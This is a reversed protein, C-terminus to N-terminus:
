GHTAARGSVDALSPHTTQQGRCFSCFGARSRRCTIGVCLSEAVKAFRGWQGIPRTTRKISRPTATRNTRLRRNESEARLRLTRRTPAPLAQRPRRAQRMQERHQDQASGTAMGQANIPSNARQRTAPRRTTPPASRRMERAGPRGQRPRGMETRGTPLRAPLDQGRLHQAQEQLVQLPAAARVVVLPDAAEAEVEM